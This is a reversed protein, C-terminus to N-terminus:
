CLAPVAQEKKRKIKQIVPCQHAPSTFSPSQGQQPAFFLAFSLQQSRLTFHHICTHITGRPLPSLSVLGTGDLHDTSGYPVRLCSNIYTHLPPVSDQRSSTFFCFAVKDTTDQGKNPVIDMWPIVGDRRQWCSCQCRRTGKKMETKEKPEMKEIRNFGTSLQHQVCLSLIDTTPKGTNAAMNETHAPVSFVLGLLGM